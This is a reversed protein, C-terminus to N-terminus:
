PKIELTPDIVYAKAGAFVIGGYEYVAPPVNVRTRTICHGKGPICKIDEVPADADFAIALNGSGSKTFWQVTAGRKARAIKPIAIAGNVLNTDDICILPASESGPDPCTGPTRQVQNTAACGFAALALLVLLSRRM